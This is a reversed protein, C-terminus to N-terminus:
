SQVDPDNHHTAESAEHEVAARGDSDGERRLPLPLLTLTKKTM